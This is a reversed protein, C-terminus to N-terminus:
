PQMAAPAAGRRLGEAGALQERHTPQQSHHRLLQIHVWAGGNQRSSQAREAAGPLPREGRGVRRRQRGEAGIARRIAVAICHVATAAWCCAASRRGALLLAAKRHRTLPAHTRKRSAMQQPLAGPAEAGAGGVGGPRQRAAGAGILGGVGCMPGSSHSTHAGLRPAVTRAAGGGGSGGGSAQASRKQGRGACTGCRASRRAASCCTRASSSCRCAPASSSLGSDSAARLFASASRRRAASFNMVTFVPQESQTMPGNTRTPLLLGACCTSPRFASLHQSPICLRGTGGAVGRAGAAEAAAHM